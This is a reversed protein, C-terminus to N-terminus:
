SDKSHEQLMKSMMEITKHFAEQRKPEFANYWDKAKEVVVETKGEVLGSYAEETFDDLPMGMKGGNKIDPQHKEDHLETQVAPPFIEVIKINSSDSDAKLQERLCLIWHHLAAKTACYNACRLMPVLALGSTTFMFSTEQGKKSKAQFFPLFATVLHIYSIYNTNVELNVTSLDIKDPKTWDFGRQIGSNIFIADLEPHDNTVSKAFAPIGDLNTVDFQIPTAKDKGHKEVFADLKEQRRGVVIVKSGNEVFKTALAEGIGSTAGIVLINKYQFAM